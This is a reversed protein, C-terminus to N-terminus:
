TRIYGDTNHDENEIVAATHSVRREIIDAKLPLEGAEHYKLMGFCETRLYVLCIQKATTQFTYFPSPFMEPEGIQQMLGM